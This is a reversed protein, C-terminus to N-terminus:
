GQKICGPRNRRVSVATFARPWMEGRGDAERCSKPAEELPGTHHPTGGTGLPRNRYVEEKVVTIEVCAHREM